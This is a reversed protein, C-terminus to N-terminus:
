RSACARSGDKPPLREEVTEAETVFSLHELIAARVAFEHKVVNDIVMQDYHTSVTLNMQM